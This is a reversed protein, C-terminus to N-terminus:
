TLAIKIKVTTGTPLNNKDYLDIVEINMNEYMESNIINLREKTITMGVSKNQIKRTTKIEEAALRGIGNDTVTCLLYDGDIGFKIEIHGKEKKNMLGHWIANEVFPQLLMPPIKDFDLDISDDLNITFEFENSFRVQELSLYLNLM